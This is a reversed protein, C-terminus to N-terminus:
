TIDCKNKEMWLQIMPNFLFIHVCRVILVEQESAPDTLEWSWVPLLDIEELSSSKSNRIKSKWIDFDVM